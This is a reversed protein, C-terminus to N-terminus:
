FRITAILLKFPRAGSSRPGMSRYFVNGVLIFLLSISRSFILSNVLPDYVKKAGKAGAANAAM